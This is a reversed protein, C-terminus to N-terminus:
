RRRDVRRRERREAVRFRERGRGGLRTRRVSLPRRGRADGNSRVGLVRREHESRRASAALVQRVRVGEVNELAVVDDVVQADPVERNVIARVVCGGDAGAEYELRGGSRNVIWNVLWLGLGGGHYLPEVDGEGLLVDRDQRPIGAGDDAVAFAVTDPRGKLTVTVAGSGHEIANEVLETFADNVDTIAGDAGTVYMPQGAAEFAHSLRQPGEIGSDGM